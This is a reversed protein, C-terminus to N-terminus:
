PAVAEQPERKQNAREVAAELAKMPDIEKARRALGITDLLKRRQELIRILELSIHRMRKSRRNVPGWHRIIELASGVFVDMLLVDEILRQEVVTPDGGLHLRLADRDAELANRLDTPLDGFGSHELERRLSVLRPMYARVPRSRDATTSPGRHRRSARKSAADPEVVEANLVAVNSAGDLVAHDM